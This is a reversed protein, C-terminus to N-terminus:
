ANTGTIKSDPWGFDCLDGNCKGLHGANARGKLAEKYSAKAAKKTPAWEGSVEPDIPWQPADLFGAHRERFSVPAARAGTPTLSALDRNWFYRHVRSGDSPGKPCCECYWDGLKDADFQEANLYSNPDQKVELLGAGCADCIPQAVPAAQAPAQSAVLQEVADAIRGFYHESVVGELFGLRDIVVQRTLAAYARGHQEAQPAKLIDTM